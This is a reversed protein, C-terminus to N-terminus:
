FEQDRESVAQKLFSISLDLPFHKVSVLKSSLALFCTKRPSFRQSTPFSTLLHRNISPFGAVACIPSYCHPLCNMVQSCM